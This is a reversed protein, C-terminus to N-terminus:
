LTAIHMTSGYLALLSWRNTIKLMDPLPRWMCVYAHGRGSVYRTPPFCQLCIAERYLCPSVEYHWLKLTFWFDPWIKSTWLGNQTGMFNRSRVRNRFVWDNHFNKRKKELSLGCALIFPFYFQTGGYRFLSFFSSFRNSKIELFFTHLKGSHPKFECGGAQFALSKLM